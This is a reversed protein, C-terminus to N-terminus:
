PAVRQRTLGRALLPKHTRGSPVVSLGKKESLVACGTGRGAPTCGLLAALAALHKRAGSPGATRREPCGSAAHRAYITSLFAM